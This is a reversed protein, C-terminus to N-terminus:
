VHAADHCATKTLRDGWDATETARIAQNIREVHVWVNALIVLQDVGVAGDCNRPQDVRMRMHHEGVPGWSLVGQTPDFAREVTTHRRHHGGRLNMQRAPWRVTRPHLRERERCVPRELVM